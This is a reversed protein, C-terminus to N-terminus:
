RLYVIIDSQRLPLNDVVSKSIVNM